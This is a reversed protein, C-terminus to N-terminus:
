PRERGVFRTKGKLFKVAKEVNRNISEETKLHSIYRVIELRRSPSLSDFIKKAAKDSNLAKQLKPHLPIVKVNDNYCVEFRATDGVEKGAARCMPTNLYLRWHGSYKVLTQTFSHGEIKMNLPIKGKDKKAQKFIQKLVKEPLFVFPNIGIIGIKATFKISRYKTNEAPM